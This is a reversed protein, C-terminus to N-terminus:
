KGARWARVLDCQKKTEPSSLEGKEAGKRLAKIRDLAAQDDVFDHRTLWCGIVTGTRGRGGWCHVYVPADRNLAGDISDLIRVMTEEDPEGLDRVPIRLGTVTVGRETAMKNIIPLYDIFPRGEYDTEDEEMLNVVHRVGCDLLATLKETM